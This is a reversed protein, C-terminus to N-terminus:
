SVRVCGVRIFAEIQFGTRPHGPLHRIPASVGGAFRAVTLPSFWGASNGRDMSIAGESRDVVSCRGRVVRAHRLLSLRRSRGSLRGAHESHEPRARWWSHSKKNM